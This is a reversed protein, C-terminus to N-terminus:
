FRKFGIKTKLSDRLSLSLGILCQTFKL